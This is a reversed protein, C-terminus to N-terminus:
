APEGPEQALKSIQRELRECLAKMQFRDAMSRLESVFPVYAANEAITDLRERIRVIQGKRALDLLPELEERPPAVVPGETELNSVEPEGDYTWVLSLRGGIKSLLSDVQVPKPEFDDCGADLAAQRNQEFVSASLAIIPIDRLAEDSRIRRTLELGGITPMMMDTLILDPRISAASELAVQGNEAEVIDFGLPSLLDVLVARNDSTDDAVLITKRDGRYGSPLRESETEEESDAIEPLDLEFWFRTGAGPASEVQIDSNMLQVIQRSIALGLGTGEAQREEEGVQEFPRFIKAQEEATMGVGTDSVTFRILAHGNDREVLRVDLAVEGTDTFKVANGLLNILVQRLRRPDGLVTKPLRDDAHFGFTLGKEQVRPRIIAGISKLQAQLLIREERLEVRDAEIRALDLVDNILELLHEGCERIVSVSRHQKDGLTRDRRLIQAYGMIGNLPTRLEHSMSALFRSKARDAAQAQIATEELQVNTDKLVANASRLARGSLVVRRTQFAIAGLMVTMLSIFWTTQYIPPQVEFRHVAAESEVNLDPDRSRVEFRYAGPSLETLTVRDRTTFPTWAGDELRWAYELVTQDSSWADKGSWVLTATGTSPVVDPPSLLTSEPGLGDNWYRVVAGLATRIWLAGDRSAFVERVDEDPLGRPSSWIGTSPDFAALGSSTGAWVSGDTSQAVAHVEDHPLGDLVSFTKTSGDPDIYTVGGGSHGHAFWLGGQLDAVAAHIYPNSVLQLSQWLGTKLRRALVGREGVVWLSGNPLPVLDRILNPLQVRARQPVWVADEANWTYLRRENTALWIVGEADRCVARPIEGPPSGLLQQSLGNVAYVVPTDHGGGILLMKGDSSRVATVPQKVVPQLKWDFADFRVVGQDVGLWIGGDLDEGIGRGRLTSVSASLDHVTWRTGEYDLRAVGRAGRGGIWVGGRADVGATFPNGLGKINRRSYATWRVAGKEEALRAIGSGCVAWVVGDRTEFVEQVNLDPLGHELGFTEWSGRRHRTVGVGYMPFWLDGNSTACASTVSTGPLGTGRRYSHWTTGDFRSVGNETAIWIDGDPGQVIRNARDNGIEERARFVEWGGAGLRGVGETTAVWLEGSATISLDTLDEGPLGDATGFTEWGGSAPQYRALGRATAFWLTGDASEAVDRVDENPLRDNGYTEWRYGDYSSVGRDTAFWLATRGQVIRNVRVSALGDIETFFQWRWAEKVPDPRSVMLTTAAGSQGDAGSALLLCLAAARVLRSPRVVSRM